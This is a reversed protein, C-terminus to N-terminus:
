KITDLSERLQILNRFEQIPYKDIWAPSDRRILATTLKAALASQIGTESDEVALCETPNCQSLKIALLYPDPHPKTKNTREVTIVEEFCDLLGATRLTAEVSGFSGTSVAFIKKRKLLLFDLVERAGETPHINSVSSRFIERKLKSAVNVQDEKCGLYRFVEETRLGAYDTYLFKPADIKLQKIAKAFARAHLHGTACLTDDVDFFFAKKM